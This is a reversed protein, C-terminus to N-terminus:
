SHTSLGQHEELRRHLNIRPGLSLFPPPPWPAMQIQVRQLPNLRQLLSSPLVLVRRSSTDTAGAVRERSSARGSSAFIGFRGSLRQMRRGTKQLLIRIQTKGGLVTSTDFM